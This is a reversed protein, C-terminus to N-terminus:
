VVANMLINGLLAFSSNGLSSLRSYLLCLADEVRTVDPPSGWVCSMFRKEDGDGQGASAPRGM